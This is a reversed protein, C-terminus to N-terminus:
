RKGERKQAPSKKRTPLQERREVEADIATRILDLRSEPPHLVADM